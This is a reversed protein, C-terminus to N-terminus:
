RIVMIIWQSGNCYQNTTSGGRQFIHTRWNPTHFEWSKMSLWDLNWPELRVLWDKNWPKQHNVRQYVTVYSHFIVMNLPFIVLLLYITATNLWGTSGADSVRAGQCGMPPGQSNPRRLSPSSAGWPECPQSWGIISIVIFFWLYIM